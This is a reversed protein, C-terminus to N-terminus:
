SDSENKQIHSINNYDEFINYNCFLCLYSKQKDSQNMIDDKIGLKKSKLSWIVLFIFQCSFPM